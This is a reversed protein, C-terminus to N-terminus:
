STYKERFQLFPKEFFNYSLGSVFIIVPLVVFLCTIVMMRFSDPWFMHCRNCMVCIAKVVPFHLWYMSYSYEGFKALVTEVPKLLSYQKVSLFLLIIASYFVAEIDHFVIWQASKFHTSTSGMFGGALNYLYFFVLLGTVVLLLLLVRLKEYQPKSFFGSTAGSTYLRAAIMGLLFQDLRGFITFYSLDRLSAINVYLIARILMMLAILGLINLIGKKGEIVKHFVPFMLYFQFEVVITWGVGPVSQSDFVFITNLLAEVSNLHKAAVEILIWFIALPFIRFFRNRIFKPFDIEKGANIFQFIFGSLVMFLSVGTHGEEIISLPFYRPVYGYLTVDWHIYHWFIVLTAAVFRL